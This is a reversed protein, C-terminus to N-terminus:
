VGSATLHERFTAWPWVRLGRTAGVKQLRGDETVLVAGEADATNLHLADRAHRKNAVETDGRIADIPEPEWFRAQNWRSM